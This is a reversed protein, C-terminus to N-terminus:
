ATSEVLGLAALEAVIDAAQRWALREESDDLGPLLCNALAAQACPGDQLRAVILAAAKGLLHTDGAGCDYLVCQGGWQRLLFRRDHALQWNM